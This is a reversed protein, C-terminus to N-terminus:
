AFGNAPTLRNLPVDAPFLLLGAFGKAPNLPRAGDDCVKGEEVVVVVVFGVTGDAAACGNLKPKGAVLLVEDIVGPVVAALIVSVNM